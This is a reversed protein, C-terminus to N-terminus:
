DGGAQHTRDGTWQNEIQVKKAIIAAEIPKVQKKLNAQAPQSHAMLFREEELYQTSQGALCHELLREELNKQDGKM